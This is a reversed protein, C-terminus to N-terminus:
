RSIINVAPAALEARKAARLPDTNVTAAYILAFAKVEADRVLAAISQDASTANCGYLAVAAGTQSGDVAAPAAPLYKGTATIRGLVTGPLVIGAGSAVVIAERSRQGNSESLVAEAPMRGETYNLAM